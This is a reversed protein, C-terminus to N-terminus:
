RRGLTPNQLSEPMCADMKVHYAMEVYNLKTSVCLVVEYEVIRGYGLNATHLLCMICDTRGGDGM